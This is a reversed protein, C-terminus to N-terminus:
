VESHSSKVSVGSQCHGAPFFIWAQCHLPVSGGYLCMSGEYMVSIIGNVYTYTVLQVM